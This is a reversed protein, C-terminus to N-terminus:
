RSAWAPSGSLARAALVTLDDDRRPDRVGAVLRELGERMPVGRRLDADLPFTAWRQM